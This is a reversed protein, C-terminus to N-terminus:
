ATTEMKNQRATIQQHCYLHVLVYNRYTEAGNQSKPQIHHKHLEEDNFLTQGCLPCKFNQKKAIKQWSPFLDSVEKEKRKKWYEKLSPDDPSSTGKVMIHREIKFWAFKLVYRGTRKNGFVWRDHRDLNLRGWYQADTWCRPKEPHMRKIYRVQRYFMWKDLAKFTKSAVGIRHYNAWGRIIPNLRDMVTDVNSGRSLMWQERLKERIKLVSKKSPRILLVLGSKKKKTTYLRINMGLFDFGESLHVIRTKEESLTLGREKLWEAILQKAREADEQSECLIAFDDAYKVVARKYKAKYNKRKIEIAAEMGHLAINALLPSIVGGQPTGVETAHIQGYEVYGAKLWQKILEMAPFGKITKLLFEHNINDFAGAIDADVIWVKKKKAAVKHIAVLADHCGRGPRFGYSTAEFRAEWFPELANKVRAQICRDIITPIGLPRQKGNAKPIYVRRAPKAQWPRFTMLEDVLEGRATPTKVIIKDVGATNKGTNVQTVRRVSVLTNSYSRLMLRQLSRAKKMDGAQSARFIRQRLNRVQRNSKKWDISKWDTPRETVNALPKAQM